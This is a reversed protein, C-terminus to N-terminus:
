VTMSLMGDTVLDLLDRLTSEHVVLIQSLYWYAFPHEDVAYLELEFGSLILDRVVCIRWHLIALPLCKLIRM